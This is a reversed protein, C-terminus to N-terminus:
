VFWNEPVGALRSAQARNGHCFKIVQRLYASQRDTLYEQLKPWTEVAKMRRPLMNATIVRGSAIAVVTAVVNSLETVNGPWPYAYFIEEADRGFEIKSTPFFPNAAKRLVDAMLTPIDEPRERLPPIVIPLSAVSFYFSDSFVGEELSGELNTTATGILRFRNELLKLMRALIEQSDIPLEDVYNLFLTGGDLGDFLPGPQGSKTVLQDHFDFPDALKCDVMRFPGSRFPGQKHLIEALARKGTGNEGAILVPTRTPLLKQVLKRVGDIAKSEGVLFDAIVNTNAAPMEGVVSRGSTAPTPSLQAAQTARTRAEMGRKLAKVLEDVRFPKQVYDFAGFKIAQMATEASTYGTMLIVTAAPDIAKIERLLTIGDMGSMAIDALVIDPKQERFTQLAEEGSLAFLSSFGSPAIVAELMEHVAPLDDVILVSPM